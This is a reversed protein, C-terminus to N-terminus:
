VAAAAVVVAAVEVALAMIKPLFIVFGFATM